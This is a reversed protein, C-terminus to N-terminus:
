GPTGESLVSLITDQVIARSSVTKFYTSGPAQKGEKEIWSGNSARQEVESQEYGRASSLTLLGCDDILINLWRAFAKAAILMM